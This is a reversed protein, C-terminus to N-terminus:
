DFYARQWFTYRYLSHENYFICELYICALLLYFLLTSLYLFHCFISMVQICLFIKLFGPCFIHEKPLHMLHIFFFFINCFHFLYMPPNMSNFIIILIFNSLCQELQFYLVAPDSLIILSISIYAIQVKILNGIHNNFYVSIDFTM